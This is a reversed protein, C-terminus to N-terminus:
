DYHIYRSTARGVNAPLFLWPQRALLLRYRISGRLVNAEPSCTTVFLAVCYMLM